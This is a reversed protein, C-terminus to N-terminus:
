NFDKGIFIVLDVSSDSSMTRLSNSFPMKFLRNLVAQNNHASIITTTARADGNRTAVVQMNRAELIDQMRALAQPHDTCKVLVVNLTKTEWNISSEETEAKADKSTTNDATKTSTAPTNKDVPSKKDTNKKDATKTKDLPLKGDKLKSKLKDKLKQDTETQSVPPQATQYMNALVHTDSEFGSTSGAHIQAIINRTAYIDPIWYSIDGRYQPEGPIMNGALGNKMAARLTNIISPSSSMPIDTKIMKSFIGTLKPLNTTNSVSTMKEYMARMFQQQRRIRGIDAEIPDRYRVYEMAQKGNMHQMGPYFDIVLGGDDDWPDEYYMRQEVNLDIGGIADVIAVFGKLDVMVYHNIEIGLFDEVTAKTLLHGGHSYAHNIKDWGVGPINVLTDRPISLLDVKDTKPDIMIVMLTDSRGVDDVREDVGMLMITTRGKLMDKSNIRKVIASKSGGLGGTFVLYIGTIALIIILLTGICGFSLKKIM